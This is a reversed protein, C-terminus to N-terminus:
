LLSSMVRFHEEEDALLDSALDATAPDNALEAQEILAKYIEIAELEAKMIASVSLEPSSANSMENQGESFEANRVDFASPVPYGLAFLRSALKKAHGFEEDIDPEILDRVIQGNFGKLNHSLQIYALATNIEAFYGERLLRHVEAQPKSSAEM